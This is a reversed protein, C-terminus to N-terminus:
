LAGLVTRNRGQSKAEYLATDAAAILVEPGADPTPMASAVGISLTVSASTQSYAHPLALSGIEIQIAEPLRLAGQADTDPLIIAFEEGGYRAALDKVHGVTRSTANAV